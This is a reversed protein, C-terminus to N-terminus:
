PALFAVVPYLQGDMGLTFASLDRVAATTNPLVEAGSLQVSQDVLLPHDCRNTIHIRAGDFVLSACDPQGQFAFTPAEPAAPAEPPPPSPPAARAEPATHDCALLGVLMMM